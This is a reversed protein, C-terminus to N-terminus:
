LYRSPDVTQGHDRVGFHLHCGTSSGTSGVRGLIAGIGVRDGSRASATALHSYSTTLGNPHRVEVRLGFAGAHGASTVVGSAAAHVPSGCDAGFDIGDHLKRVGTVPHVRLGYASTVPGAVPKRLEGATPPTPIPGDPPVLRFRGPGVLLELPDLYADGRKRGLHLAGAHGSMLIGLPDGAEVADGPKVSARVPEYTSQEVGHDVVVVGKGAVVGAFRVTGAAAARVTSGPSGAVDVGRHGPGYASEPPDFERTVHHGALPWEWRSESALAPGLGLMSVLTILSLIRAPM